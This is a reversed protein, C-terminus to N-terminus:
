QSNALKEAVRLKASRSRPNLSIEEETAAIPKKTLIKLIREKGKDRFFNKVVRDELSHFSIAAIKGGPFLIEAASALGKKLNEIEGNTAIRLAQFVRTAFHIRRDRFRFPIASGIVDVLKKTTIIKEEKRAEIIRGAIKRAWKEEGYEKFINELDDEPWYNVIEKATLAQKQSYRMDLAEDKLFSFGRGSEEVDWSSMGLDLLIGNVPEFNHKEVINKLNGYNDNELILNEGVEQRKDNLELREIIKEDWDIGLIKGNPKIKEWIAFSHGGEGITCDIFNDGPKLNLYEIVENLLVPIHV